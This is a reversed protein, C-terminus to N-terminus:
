RSVPESVGLAKRMDAQAAQYGKQYAYELMRCFQAENNDPRFHEAAWDNFPQLLHVTNYQERDIYLMDGYADADRMLRFHETDIPIRDPDEYTM